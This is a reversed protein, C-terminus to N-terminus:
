EEELANALDHCFESLKWLDDISLKNAEQKLEELTM